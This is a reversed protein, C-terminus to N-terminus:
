PSVPIVHGSSGQKWAKDGSLDELDVALDPFATKLAQKEQTAVDSLEPVPSNLPLNKVSPGIAIQTLKPFRRLFEIMDENVTGENLYIINVDTAQFESSFAPISGAFAYGSSCVHVLSEFLDEEAQEEAKTREEDRFVVCIEAVPVFRNSENKEVHRPSMRLLCITRESTLVLEEDVAACGIEFPWEAIEGFPRDFATRFGESRRGLRITEWSYRLSLDMQGDNKAPYGEEVTKGCMCSILVEYADGEHHHGLDYSAITRWKADEALKERVIISFSASKNPVSFKYAKGGISQADERWSTALRMGRDRFGEAVGVPPLVVIIIM